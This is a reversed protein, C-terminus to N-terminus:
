AQREISGGSGAPILVALLGAATGEVELGCHITWLLLLGAARQLRCAGDFM